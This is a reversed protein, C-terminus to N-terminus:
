RPFLPRANSTGPWPVSILIALLALGFFIVALRHRRVLDATKRIRVRGVHALVIGVIAGFPHEVAWFRLDPTRMASGFHDMALTTYPSYAFYLLLGLLLQIDLAIIFFLGAKDDAATWPRAGSWGAIARFVALLGFLLIAWRVWSHVLLVTEYM